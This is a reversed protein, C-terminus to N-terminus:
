GVNCSKEAKRKKLVVQGDDLETYLELCSTYGKPYPPNLGRLYRRIQVLNYKATDKFHSQYFGTNNLSQHVALVTGTGDIASNHLARAEFVLWNDYGLSGIVVEPGEDWNYGKGTIFYDEASIQFLKGRAQSVTSINHFNAAESDTVNKVNTRRGSIFTRNKTLNSYDLATLTTLLNDTFLIDANAFGYYKSNFMTMADKFMYKLIPLRNPASKSINLVTWGAGIAITKSENSIDNTFLVPTFMPKFKAWNHLTHKFIPETAVSRSVSTFMTLLTEKDDTIDKLELNINQDRTPLVKLLEDKSINISINIDFGTQNNADQGHFLGKIKAGQGERSADTANSMVDDSERLSFMVNTLNYKHLTPVYFADKQLSFDFLMFLVGMSLVVAIFFLKRLTLRTAMTVDSILILAFTLPNIIHALINSICPTSTICLM